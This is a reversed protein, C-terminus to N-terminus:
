YTIYKEVKGNNKMFTDVYQNFVSKKHPELLDITNSDDLNFVQVIQEFEHLFKELRHQNLEEFEINEAVKEIVEINSLHRKDVDQVIDNMELYMKLIDINVDNKKSSYNLFYFQSLNLKYNENDKQVDANIKNLQTIEKSLINRIANIAQDKTVSLFLNDESKLVEKIKNVLNIFM